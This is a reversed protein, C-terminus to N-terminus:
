RKLRWVFIKIKWACHYSFLVTKLTFLFFFTEFNFNIWSDVKVFWSQILRSIVIVSTAVNNWCIDVNFWCHTNAPFPSQFFSIHYSFIELIDPCGRCYHSIASENVVNWHRLVCWLSNWVEIGTLSGFNPRQFQM